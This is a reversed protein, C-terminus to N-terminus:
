KAMPGVLTIVQLPGVTPPTGPSRFAAIIAQPNEYVADGLRYRGLATEPLAQPSTFLVVKRDRPLDAVDFFIPRPAYAASLRFERSLLVTDSGLLRDLAVYDAYFAIARQYFATTELGFAVRFFQGAYYAQGGLWPLLLLAYAIAAARASAVLGALGPAAFAAFVIVLGYHLGGLFRPECHFFRYVVACQLLLLGALALRTTTALTTAAIAGITGLWILPSYGVATVWLESIVPRTRSADDGTQIIAQSLGDPYVSPGFAGALLPGFPSGSQLWTWLAIPCFFVIWPAAFALTVRLGAAPPGSRILPWAALGLLVASLPLLSLKSTSASLLLLSMLAARASSGAEPSHGARASIFHGRQGSAESALAGRASSGAEPSHGARASIFHGRQGSAESALAARAPPALAGLLRERSAFAVIAAAMALDSMAHAGGTVHWVVPYMGVGLSAAWLAAWAAPKGNARIVRWAFWILTAGLGWSVVNAADPYGMAHAPAAAIQYLMHPWIAAEWPERYFHLAGDAAIRGPLLLHYYLEDIKSSPALAVILDIAIAPGAITLLLLPLAGQRPARSATGLQLLLAAMGIACLAWWIAALVPRSAMGAMGLIQVSLSLAQVGLLLAAVHDWPSPFRLRLGSLILTGTGWLGLFMALGATLV